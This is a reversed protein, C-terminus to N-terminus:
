ATGFIAVSCVLSGAIGGHNHTLGQRINGKLQREQPEAKGQLQKYIEYIMRIGSAGIPHGFCKLGGDSQCPIKGDLDFFGEEIDGRAKGMPSIHLSEYTVLESISFCDHVEMLDIEERPNEIGAEKYAKEGAIRTEEFHTGSWSQHGIGTAPTLSLQLAKVYVPDPRFDKAKEAPVVIAAAGGDSVGCCDFLGLPWAIIPANMIQDITAERRLHARPNMAGNKHSKYSIRALVRKGEEPSLGYKEFYASAVMGFMGPASLNPYYFLNETGTSTGLAPLGGYGTDKLKEAGIALAIESAGSAVAYCAGRLAETGTTCFNEVRTVPINPLKLTRALPIGGKGVNVEDFASGFWAADIDKTEIGADEIAEKYADVILDEESKDWFEGFKTCGMGIIAVKDKIGIAM